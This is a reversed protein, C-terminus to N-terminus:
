VQYRPRMTNPMIDVPMCQGQDHVVRWQQLVLAPKDVDPQWDSLLGVDGAAKSADVMDAQLFPSSLCCITVGM